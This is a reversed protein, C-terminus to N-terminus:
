SHPFALNFKAVSRLGTKLSLGRANKIQPYNFHNATQSLNQSEM